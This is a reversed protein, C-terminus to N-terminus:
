LPLSPWNRFLWVLVNGAFRFLERASESSFTLSIATTFFVNVAIELWDKRGLRKSADELYAFRSEVFKINAETLSHTKLVYEKIERINASIKSQEAPTFPINDSETSSVAEVLQREKELEAWLDPEDVELSLRAMWNRFAEYVSVWDAAHGGEIPNDLGPRCRFGNFRNHSMTIIFYYNTTLYKIEIEHEYYPYGSDYQEEAKVHFSFDSPSLDVKQIFSFLANTQHRLLLNRVADLDSM